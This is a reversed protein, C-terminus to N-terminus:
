DYLNPFILRCLRLRDLPSLRELQDNLFKLHPPTLSVLPLEGTSGAVSSAASGYGSEVENSQQQPKSADAARVQPSSTYSSM